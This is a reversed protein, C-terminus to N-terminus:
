QPVPREPFSFRVKNVIKTMPIAMTVMSSGAFLLSVAANDKEAVIVSGSDGHDSMYSYLDLGTFTAKGVPDGYDVSITAGKALLKGTTFETTRGYKKVAEGIGADRYGNIAGVVLNEPTVKALSEDIEVISVDYENSKTNSIPLTYVTRGIAGYQIGGPQCIVIDEPTRVDEQTVHANTLIAYKETPIINHQNLFKMFSYWADLLYLTRAGSPYTKIKIIAGATGVYRGGKPGIECGGFLPRYSQRDVQAKVEGIEIVDTKKRSFLGGVKKPIIDKEEWPSSEDKILKTIKPMTLKKNVFVTVTGKDNWADDGESIGVVNRLKLLDKPKIM